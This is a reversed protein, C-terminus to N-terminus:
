GRDEEEEALSTVILLTSGVVVLYVGVDFILPTGLALETRSSLVIKTWFGTMLAEGWGLSILGSGVALLLGSGILITPEIAVARRAAAADWAFVYLALATSALLGGAFGGGPLNHGRLLAFISFLILLPMLFRATTRLILSSM